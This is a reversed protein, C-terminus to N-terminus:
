RPNNPAGVPIYWSWAPIGDRFRGDMGADQLAEPIAMGDAGQGPKGQLPLVHRGYHLVQHMQGYHQWRIRRPDLAIDLQKQHLVLIGVLLFTSWLQGRQRFWGQALALTWAMGLLMLGAPLARQVWTGLQNMRLSAWLWGSVLHHLVDGLLPGIWPTEGFALLLATGPIAITAMPIAVLNGLLFWPPFRGFHHWALAWTGAQAAISVSFLNALSAGLRGSLRLRQRLPGHCLLIGAVAAFSLQAGLASPTWPQWLMMTWLACYWANWASGQRGFVAAARWFSFFVAARLVSPSAGTLLAYAWISALLLIAQLVRAHAPWLSGEPSGQRSSHQVNRQRKRWGASLISLKRLVQGLAQLLKELWLALLGVHLGSVALVHMTGTESFVAKTDRDLGAKWGLAMAALVAAQPTSEEPGISAQAVAGPFSAGVALVASPQTPMRSERRRQAANAMTRFCREVAWQRHRQLAQLTQWRWRVARTTVAMRHGDTTAPALMWLDKDFRTQGVLGMSAYWGVMDFDWSGQPPRAVQPELHSVFADGLRPVMGAAPWYGMVRRSPQYEAEPSGCLLVPSRWQRTGHPVPTQLVRIRYWGDDPLGAQPLIASSHLRIGALVAFALVLLLTHARALAPGPVGHLSRIFPKRGGSLKQAMAVRGLVLLLVM